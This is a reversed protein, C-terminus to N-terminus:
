TAARKAAYMARDARDLLETANAAEGSAQAVGVSVTLEVEGRPLEVPRAFATTIREVVPEIEDSGSVDDLLIVFEDGGFRAVVDNSRVCAALRRAVERLVEDGVLHGFADNVHKFGDVDVFLVACRHDRSREGEILATLRDMLQARDALGTLPDVRRAQEAASEASNRRVAITLLTRGGVEVRRARFESDSEVGAAVRLRSSFRVEEHPGASAQSFRRRVDEPWMETLWSLLHQRGIDRNAETFWAVLTANAIMDIGDVPDVLCLGDDSLDLLARLPAM